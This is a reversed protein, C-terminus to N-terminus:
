GSNGGQAAAAGTLALALLLIPLLTKTPYRM